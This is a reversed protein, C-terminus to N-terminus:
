VIEVPYVPATPLHAASNDGNDDGCKWTLPYKVDTVWKGSSEMTILYITQGCQGCTAAKYQGSVQNIRRGHDTCLPVPTIFFAINKCNPWECEYIGKM